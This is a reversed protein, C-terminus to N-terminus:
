NEPLCLLINFKRFQFPRFTGRIELFQFFVEGCLTSWIRLVTFPGSKELQFSEKDYYSVNFIEPFGYFDLIVSEGPKFEWWRNIPQAM